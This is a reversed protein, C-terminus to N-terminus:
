LLGEDVLEQWPATWADTIKELLALAMDREEERNSAVCDRPVVLDYELMHAEQATFLICIHAQWGTLILEDVELEELLIELPTAYFASHKPKLIFLDGPEPELLDVIQRGLENSGAIEETLEPFSLDWRGFNDHIYIIPLGEQRAHERLAHVQRAAPLAHRALRDGDEFDFNTIVDILLLAREAM